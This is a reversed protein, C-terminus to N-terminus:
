FRFVLSLRHSEGLDSSVGYAWDVELNAFRVSLGLSGTSGDHGVRAALAGMWVELGGRLAPDRALLDSGEVLVAWRAGPWPEGVLAVGVELAPEWNETHGDGFVIPAALVNEALLGVQMFGVRLLLAPDFAVGWATYPESVRYLKLRGGLGLPGLSVGCSVVGAQSVYRFTEEGSLIPGSDIQMVTVGLGPLALGVVGYSVGGFGETFLSHVGVRELWGLGAPNYFSANEDDALALFASGMGLPRAGTGLDFIGAVGSLDEGWGGAALAFLLFFLVLVPGRRRM